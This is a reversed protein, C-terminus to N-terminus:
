GSADRARRCKWQPGYASVGDPEADVDALQEGSLATFMAALRGCVARIRVIAWPIWTAMRTEADDVPLLLARGPASRYKDAVYNWKNRLQACLAALV